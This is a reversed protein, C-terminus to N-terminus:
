PFMYNTRFSSGPPHMQSDAWQLRMDPAAGTKKRMLQPHQPTPASICRLRWNVLLSLPLRRPKTRSIKVRRPPLPKEHPCTLIRFVDSSSSRRLSFLLWINAPFRQLTWFIGLEGGLWWLGIWTGRLFVQEWSHWLCPAKTSGVLLYGGCATPCEVSLEIQSDFTAVEM